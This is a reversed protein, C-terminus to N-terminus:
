ELTMLTLVHNTPQCVGIIGADQLSPCLFAFGCDAQSVYCHGILIIIIIIIDGSTEGIKAERVKWLEQCGLIYFLIDNQHTPSSMYYM